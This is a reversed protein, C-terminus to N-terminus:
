DQTNCGYLFIKSLFSYGGHMFSDSSYFCHQLTDEIAAKYGLKPIPNAIGDQKTAYTKNEM